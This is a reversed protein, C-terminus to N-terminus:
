KKLIKLTRVNQMFLTQAAKEALAKIDNNASFYVIPIKRYEDQEQYNSVFRRQWAM